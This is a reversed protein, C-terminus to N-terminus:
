REGSHRPPEPRQPRWGLLWLAVRVWVLYVLPPGLLVVALGICHKM